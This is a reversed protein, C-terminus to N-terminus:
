SFHAISTLGSLTQTRSNLRLRRLVITDPRWKQRDNLAPKWRCTGQAILIWPLQTSPNRTRKKKKKKGEKLTPSRNSKRKNRNKIENEALDIKAALVQFFSESPHRGTKGQPRSKQIRDQVSTM